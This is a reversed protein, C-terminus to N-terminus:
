DEELNDMDNGFMKLFRKERVINKMKDKEKSQIMWKLFFYGIMPGRNNNFTTRYSKIDHLIMAGVQVFYFSYMSLKSFALLLSVGEVYDLDFELNLKVIMDITPSFYSMPNAHCKHTMYTSLVKNNGINPNTTSFTHNNKRLHDRLKYMCKREEPLKQIESCCFEVAPGCTYHLRHLYDDISKRTYCIFVVRWGKGSLEDGNDWIMTSFTVVESLLEDNYIDEHIKCLHYMTSKENYKDFRNLGLTIAEIINDQYLKRSFMNLREDIM